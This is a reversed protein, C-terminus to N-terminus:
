ASLKNVVALRVSDRSVWQEGSGAHPAILVDVSGFRTRVDRIEVLFALDGRAPRYEAFTGILERMELATM